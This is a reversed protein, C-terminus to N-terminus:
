SRITSITEGRSSSSRASCSRSRPMAAADHDLQEDDVIGRQHPAQQDVDEGLGAPELYERRFEDPSSLSQLTWGNDRAYTAVESRHLGWLFPESRRSLWWDILPSGDRFALPRGPQAEMFTFAFRSGDACFASLERFLEAVRAPSLYMLLGEAVLFAPRGPDFGPRARLADVASEQALDAAVLSPTTGEREKPYVRRKLSQSAPHDVEICVPVSGAIQHRWALTDMGAGFVALQNCGAAVAKEALANLLRKRALYHVLIGPLLCREVAFLVFRGLWHRSALDFLRAPSADVLLKRTLDAAHPLLLPRLAPTADALLMCRAILLSTASSRNADM